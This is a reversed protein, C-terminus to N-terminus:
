ETMGPSLRRQWQGSNVLTLLDDRLTEGHILVHCVVWKTSLHNKMQAEGSTWLAAVKRMQAMQGPLVSMRMTLQNLWLRFRWSRPSSTGSRRCAQQPDSPSFFAPVPNYTYLDSLSWSLFPINLWHYYNLNLFLDHVLTRCHNQSQLRRSNWTPSLLECSGSPQTRCCCM